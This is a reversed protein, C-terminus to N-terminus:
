SGCCVHEEEDHVVDFAVFDSVVDHFIELALAAKAYLFGDEQGVGGGFGILGDLGVEGFYLREVFVM